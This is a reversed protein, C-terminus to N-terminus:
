RGWRRGCRRRSLRGVGPRGARAPGADDAVPLPRCRAQSSARWPRRSAIPPILGHPAHGVAVKRDEPGPHLGYRAYL